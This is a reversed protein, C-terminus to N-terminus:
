ISIVQVWGKGMRFDGYKVDEIGHTPLAISLMREALELRFM